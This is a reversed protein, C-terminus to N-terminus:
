VEPDRKADDDSPLNMDSRTATTSGEPQAGPEGAHDETNTANIPGDGGQGTSVDARGNSAQPAEAVQQGSAADVTSGPEPSANDRDHLKQRLLYGELPWLQKIADEYAFRRGKEADFNDASAPASKGLITFGNELQLVCITLLNLSSPIVPVNRQGRLAEGATFYHEGVIKAEMSALSVREDPKASQAASYDDTAQLTDSKM